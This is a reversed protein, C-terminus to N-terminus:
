ASSVLKDNILGNSTGEYLTNAVAVATYINKSVENEHIGLWLFVDVAM